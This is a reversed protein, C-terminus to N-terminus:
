HPSPASGGELGELPRSITTGPPAVLDLDADPLQSNIKLHSFTILTRDGDPDNMEVKVICGTDSDILVRVSELHEALAADTPTLKIALHSPAPDKELAAADLPEMTFHKRMIQLRPIPSAALDGLRQGLAYIEMVKRDVYLIKVEKDDISMITHRPKATDWRMRSGKVLIAGASTLPKKLLTTFKQQTFTASLDQIKAVKNDLTELQRQFTPDAPQSTPSSSPNVASVCLVCLLYMPLLASRKPRMPQYGM